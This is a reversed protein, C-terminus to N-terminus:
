DVIELVTRKNYKASVANVIVRMAIATRGQKGIVKGIDARDVRLELIATNIGGVETVRVLDPRDVLARAIKEIIEKM